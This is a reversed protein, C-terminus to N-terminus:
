KSEERYLAGGKQKELKLVSQIEQDTRILEETVWPSAQQGVSEWYNKIYILNHYHHTLRHVHAPAHTEARQAHEEVKDNRSM